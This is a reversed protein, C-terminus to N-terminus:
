CCVAAVTATGGYSCWSVTHTFYINTCTDTLTATTTSQLAVAAFLHSQTSSLPWSTHTARQKICISHKLVPRRAVPLLVIFRNRGPDSPQANLQHQATRDCCYQLCSPKGAVV